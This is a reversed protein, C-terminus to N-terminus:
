LVSKCLMPDVMTKFKTQIKSCSTMVMLCNTAWGILVGSVQVIYLQHKILDVIFNYLMVQKIYGSCGNEMTRLRNQNRVWSWWKFAPRQKQNRSPLTPSFIYFGVWTKCDFTLGLSPKVNEIGFRFGPRWNTTLLKLSCDFLCIITFNM